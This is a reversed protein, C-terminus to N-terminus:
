DVTEMECAYAVLDGHCGSGGLCTYEGLCGEEFSCSKGEVFDCEDVTVCGLVRNECDAAAAHVTSSGLMAFTFIAVMSALQVVTLGRRRGNKLM